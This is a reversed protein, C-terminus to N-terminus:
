VNYHYGNVNVSGHINGDKDMYSDVSYKDGNATTGKSHSSVSGDRYVTGYTDSSGEEGDYHTSVDYGDESPTASSSISDTDNHTFNIEKTENNTNNIAIASIVLIIIIAVAIILYKMKTKM